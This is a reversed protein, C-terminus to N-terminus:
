RREGDARLPELEDLRARDAPSIAPVAPVPAGRQLGPLALAAGITAGSLLGALLALTVHPLTGGLVPILAAPIVGVAPVLAVLYPLQGREIKM